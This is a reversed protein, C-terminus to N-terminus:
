FLNEDFADPYNQKIYAIIDRKASTVAHWISNKPIRLIGNQKRATYDSIQQYSMSEFYYLRFLEKRYFDLTDMAEEIIELLEKNDDTLNNDHETIHHPKLEDSTADPRIYTRYFKSNKSRIQNKFFGYVYWRM